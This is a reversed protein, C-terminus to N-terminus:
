YPSQETGLGASETVSGGGHLPVPAGPEALVLAASVLPLFCSNQSENGVQSYSFCSLVPLLFIM